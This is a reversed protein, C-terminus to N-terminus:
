PRWAYGLKLFLTRGKGTLPVRTLDTDVFGQRDDSYGLFVVTQPNLKYSFLLQALLSTSRPQEPEVQMEPNRKTDHWQVIARVMTRPTFGYVVRLQSAQTSLIQRGAWSLRQQARSLGVDVGRGFRMTLSPELRLSDAKRVNTYDVGGGADGTLQLSLTGNPKVAAVFYLSSLDFSRGRYTEQGFYPNLMVSTQLPGEYQLVVGSYRFKPRGAGDRFFNLFPGFDIRSYWHGAGARVRRFLWSSVGRRSVQPLFGADARFGADVSSATLAGVWNRSTYSLAARFANGGFAGKPQSNEVATAEPYRTSSRVFQLSVSAPKSIQLFADAGAVQNRYDTGSRGAYLVGVTSSAGVDRKYRGIITEVPSEITVSSSEESGPILLNDIADRAVMLGLANAGIKGTLKAGFSPEAISRTFVVPIPTTFLDAGELFFPRKEKLQLAFTSNADLQPTDAEVQSFDPNVSVNLSVNSGPGWRVDVGVDKRLAGRQFPLMSPLERTDSRQSTFTPAVDFNRGASIGQLGTLVNAQCLVCSNGRDVKMSRTEILDSRPQRRVFYFGWTQAGASPPFRLSRFPIAAEVVYGTDTLRGASTWIADWSADETGGQTIVADAQVGIANVWFVFARRADNFPDLVLAIRDDADSMDRDSIFARIQQANPDSARCGFYLAQRDATILCDTQARAPTSDGPSTEFALPVRTATEWGPDDLVADVRIARAARGVTYEVRDGAMPQSQPATQGVAAHAVAVVLLSGVLM